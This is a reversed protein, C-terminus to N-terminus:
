HKKGLSMEKMHGFTDCVAEWNERAARTSGPFNIVVMTEKQWASARSLMARNTKTLSHMMMAIGIGPLERDCTAKCAEPTVDRPGLGTGGCTITIDCKHQHAKCIAQGIEAQDDTVVVRMKLTHGAQVILEELANGAEDEAMSRSDSCTIIAFNLSEQSHHHHNNM